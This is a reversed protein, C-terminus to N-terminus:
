KRSTTSTSTPHHNKKQNKRGESVDATGKKGESHSLHSFLTFSSLSYLFLTSLQLFHPLVFISRRQDRIRMRKKKSM